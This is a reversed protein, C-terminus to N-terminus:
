LVGKIRIIINDLYKNKARITVINNQNVKMFELDAVVQRLEIRLKKIEELQIETTAKIEQVKNLPVFNTM